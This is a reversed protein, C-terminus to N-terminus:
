PLPIMALMGFGVTILGASCASVLVSTFIKKVTKQNFAIMMLALFLFTAIMFPFAQFAPFFNFYARCVPMLVFVYLCLLLSVIFFSRTERQKMLEVLKSWKIFDFGAGEKRANRYLMLACFFLVLSLLFPMLAPSLYWNVINDKIMDGSLKAFDRGFPNIFLGISTLFVYVSIIMLLIAFVLDTRRLTKKEM